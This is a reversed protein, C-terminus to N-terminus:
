WCITVVTRNYVRAYLKDIGIPYEGDMCKSLIYLELISGVIYERIEKRSRSNDNSRQIYRDIAHSSVRLM